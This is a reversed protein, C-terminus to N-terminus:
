EICAQIIARWEVPGPEKSPWRVCHFGDRDLEVIFSPSMADILAPEFRLADRALEADREDDFLIYRDSGDVQRITTVLHLKM